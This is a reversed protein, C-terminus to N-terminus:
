SEHSCFAAFTEIGVVHELRKRVIILRLSEDAVFHAASGPPMLGYHGVKIGAKFSNHNLFLGSGDLVYFFTETRDDAPFEGRKGAPLEILYEVFQAGLAPSALVKVEADPWTPLRSVPFGELPMLAYRPRVRTRTHVLQQVPRM